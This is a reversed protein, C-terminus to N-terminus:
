SKKQREQARRVQRSRGQLAQERARALRRQRGRNALWRVITFTVGFALAAVLASALGGVM